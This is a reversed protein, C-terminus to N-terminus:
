AGILALDDGVTGLPGNPDLRAEVRDRDGLGPVLRALATGVRVDMAAVGVGEVHELTRKVELEAGLPLRDPQRSAGVDGGRRLDGVREPVIPVSAGAEQVEVRRATPEGVIQPCQAVTFVPTPEVLEVRGGVPASPERVPRHQPQVFALPDVDAAGGDEDLPRAGRAVAHEKEALRGHLRPKGTRRGVNVALQM